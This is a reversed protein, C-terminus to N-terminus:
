MRVNNLAKLVDSNTKLLAGRWSLYCSRQVQQPATASSDNEGSHTANAFMSSVPYKANNLCFVFPNNIMTLFDHM